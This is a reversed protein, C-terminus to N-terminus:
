REQNPLQAPGAIPLNPALETVGIPLADIRIKYQYALNTNNYRLQSIEEYCANRVYILNFVGNGIPLKKNGFDNSLFPVAYTLPVQASRRNPLRSKM